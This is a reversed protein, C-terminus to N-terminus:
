RRLDDMCDEWRRVPNAPSSQVPLGYKGTMSAPAEIYGVFQTATNKWSVSVKGQPLSVTASAYNLDGAYAM